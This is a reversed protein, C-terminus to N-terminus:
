KITVDDADNAIILRGGGSGGGSTFTFGDITIGSVYLSYPVGNTRVLISEGGRDTSGAPDNGAQAGLLTISNTIRYGAPTGSGSDWIDNTYTGAAVIITDNDVVNTLAHTITLWPTGESGDGTTDSGTTAVYYTAAQALGSLALVLTVVACITILKKM